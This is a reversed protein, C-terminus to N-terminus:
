YHILNPNSFTPYMTQAKKILQQMVPLNSSEYRSVKTIKYKVIIFIVSINQINYPLDM